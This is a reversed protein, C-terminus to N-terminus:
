KRRLNQLLSIARDLMLCLKKKTQATLRAAKRDQEYDRLLFSIEILESLLNESDGKERAFDQLDSYYGEMILKNEWLEVQISKEKEIAVQNVSLHTPLTKLLWERRRDKELKKQRFDNAWTVFFTLLSGLFVGTLSHSSWTIWPQTPAQVELGEIQSVSVMSKQTDKNLGEAYLLVNCKGPNKALASFKVPEKMPMLVTESAKNQLELCNEAATSTFTISDVLDSTVLVRIIITEGSKAIARDAYAQIKLPGNAESQSTAVDQDLCWLILTALTFSLISKTKRM